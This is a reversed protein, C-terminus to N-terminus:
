SKKGPLNVAVVPHRWGVALGNAYRTDIYQVDEWVGALSAMTSPKWNMFVEVPLRVGSKVMVGSSTVWQWEGATDLNISKPSLMSDTAKDKLDVFALWVEKASQDPGSLQPLDSAASALSDGPYFVVGSKDILADKNWRAVPEREAITVVVRDPWVLSVNVSRVWPLAALKSHVTKLKVKFLRDQATVGMETVVQSPTLHHLEGRVEVTNIGPDNASFWSVLLGLILMSFISFLIHYALQNKIPSLVDEQSVPPEIIWNGHRDITAASTKQVFPLRM